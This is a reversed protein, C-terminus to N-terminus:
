FVVGGARIYEELNMIKLDAIVLPLTIRVGVLRTGNQAILIFDLSRVNLARHGRLYTWLTAFIVKMPDNIFLRILMRIPMAIATLIM